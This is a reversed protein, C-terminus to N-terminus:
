EAPLLPLINRRVQAGLIGLDQEVMPQPDEVCTPLRERILNTGMDDLRGDLLQPHHTEM